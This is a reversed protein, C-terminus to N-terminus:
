WNTNVSRNDTQLIEGAAELAKEASDAWVIQQCDRVWTSYYDNVKGYNNDLLVAPRGILLSLIFGHLMDTIVCRGASLLKLGHSVRTHAVLDYALM